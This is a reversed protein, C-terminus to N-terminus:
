DALLNFREPNRINRRMQESNPVEDDGRVLFSKRQIIQIAGHSFLHQKRLIIAAPIPTPASSDTRKMKYHPLSLVGHESDFMTYIDNDMEETAVTDLPHSLKALELSGLKPYAALVALLESPTATGDKARVVLPDNEDVSGLSITPNLNIRSWQSNYLSVAVFQHLADALEPSTVWGREKADNMAATVKNDIRELSALSYKTVGDPEVATWANLPVAGYELRQREPSLEFGHFRETM